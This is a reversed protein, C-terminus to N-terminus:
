RPINIWFIQDNNNFTLEIGFQVVAVEQMKEILVKSPTMRTEKFLRCQNSIEFCFEEIEILKISDIGIYKNVEKIFLSTDTNM